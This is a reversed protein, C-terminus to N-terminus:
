RTAPRGRLVQGLVLTHMSSAEYALVALPLTM